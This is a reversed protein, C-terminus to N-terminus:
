GPPHGPEPAGPYGAEPRRRIGRGAPLVHHSPLSIVNRSLSDRLRGQDFALGGRLQLGFLGPDSRM